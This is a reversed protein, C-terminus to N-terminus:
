RIYDAGPRVRGSAIGGRWWEITRAIGDELSVRPEWGTAKRLRSNEAMLTQVESKAPRMRDAEQVIPKNAGSAALVAEVTEGISVARGTGGNYPLGYDLGDALGV